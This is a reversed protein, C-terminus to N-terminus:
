GRHFEVGKAGRPYNWSEILKGLSLVRCTGCELCGEYNFSLKGDEYSYLGAPCAMTLLRIEKEDDCDENIAIHSGQEDVKFRVLGLKDDVRLAAM